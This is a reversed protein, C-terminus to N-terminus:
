SFREIQQRIQALLGHRRNWLWRLTSINLLGRLSLSVEANSLSSIIRVLKWSVVRHHFQYRGSVGLTQIGFPASFAQLLPQSNIHLDCDDSPLNEIVRLECNQFDLIACINLDAIYTKVDRIKRYLFPNTQQRWLTSRKNFAVMCKEITVSEIGEIKLSRYEYYSRYFDTADDNLIEDLYTGGTAPKLLACQCGNSELHAKADVSSNAFENLACNDSKAFYMFSAFPVTVVAGLAHHHQVMKDLVAIRNAALEERDFYGEFGAISFQNFLVDFTGFRQRIIKCDQQNLETDNINLLANKKEYIVGLCSDLHRHAYIFVDLQEDLAYTELHRLAQHRTYGIDHLAKFVKKSNTEQFLLQINAPNVQEAITKLTPFHLHDPHEHSIWIHTINTLDIDRLNPTPELRWGDNFVSGSFWPDCLVVSHSTEIRLCAHAIFDVKLGQIKNM